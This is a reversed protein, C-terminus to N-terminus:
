ALPPPWGVMPLGGPGHVMPCASRPRRRGVAEAHTRGPPPGPPLAPVRVDDALWRLSAPDPPDPVDRWRSGNQGVEGLPSGRPGRVREDRPPRRTEANGDAVVVVGPRVALVNCGLTPYEDDPVEVLRMGLEALLADLGAPVLPRYVVALDDAVPSIVSLLHVLEAPGKWWPCTSCASTAVSSRRRAAASGANNTRLSGVSAVAPGPAALVHRRGRRDRAGRGAAITPIGHDHWRHRRAAGARASRGAKAPASRSAGRRDVLLPDFVYVLDPNRINEARTIHVRVGLRDRALRLWSSTSAHRARALDVPRLFGAAPDDFAADSRPEPRRSSCRQAAARGHEPRRVHAPDVTAGPGCARCRDDSM